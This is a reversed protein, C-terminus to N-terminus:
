EIPKLKDVQNPIFVGWITGNFYQIAKLWQNCEVIKHAIAANELKEGNIRATEITQKTANFESISGM